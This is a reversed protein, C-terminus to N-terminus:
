NNEAWEIAQKQNKFSELSRCNEWDKENYWVDNKFVIYNNIKKTKEMLKIYKELKNM